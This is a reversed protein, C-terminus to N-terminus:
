FRPLIKALFFGWSRTPTRTYMDWQDEGYPRMLKVVATEPLATERPAQRSARRIGAEVDALVVEETQEAGYRFVVVEKKDRDFRTTLLCPWQETKGRVHHEFSAFDNAEKGTEPVVYLRRNDDTRILDKYARRVLV